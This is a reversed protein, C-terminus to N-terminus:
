PGVAGARAPLAFRRTPIRAQAPKRRLIADRVLRKLQAVTATALIEDWLSSRSARVEPRRGLDLLAAMAEDRWLLRVLTTPDIAPNRRPKRVCTFTVSGNVCVTTIGWWEPVIAAAPDLHREAVVATCRDFLRGYACAQRPLRKLTDRETKIEFGHMLHGIVALDARENSRPVWFEEVADRGGTASALIEARLANRVATEAAM